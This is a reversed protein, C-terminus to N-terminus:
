SEREPKSDPASARAREEALRMLMIKVGDLDRLHVDQQAHAMEIGAERLAKIVRFRLDSQVAALKTVDPTVGGVSFEFGNMGLNELAVSPAPHPLLMPCDKGVRELMRRVQEPDSKSSVTVRVTAAGLSNRHTYNTVTSTVLASNPVILSAKEATEIETSRVSIRRVFGELGNVSVRDGVKIPREVLLILGSVFNNVISQLGLGIGVSLAGAVIAFNTIDIGGYSVAVLAALIFGAYGVATRVSNAIGQDIRPSRFVDKDLWRQLLRTAFVLALFLLAALMIRAVSIRFDGVQFGLVAARVWSLSESLTYGWTILFLPVAALALAINLLASFARTLVRSQTEDLGTQEELVTALPKIGSGPAGLLARIALHLVLVVAIASGTVIVQQAIFRGLGIYGFLTTALIALAALLIPVKLIQPRLLSTDDYVVADVAAPSSTTVAAPSAAGESIPVSKDAPAARPLPDFPVRVIQLMLLGIALSALATEMISLPLPLYLRAIIQQLILDGSFVAAIGMIIRSLRHAAPTSLDVLRWHARRPQLIARALASAVIFALLAPAAAHAIKGVEMVLLNLSELGGALASLAVLGPLALLPAMWGVTVAKTFFSPPKERPGDLRHALFRRVLAISVALLLAVGGILAALATGRRSALSWWDSIASGVQRVASPLDDALTDWTAPTVPSPSRQLIHSAFLDQRARQLTDRLQNARVVILEINKLAGDFEAAKANLRAREATVNAAEPAADKAPTTGLQEVQQRLAEQKPKIADRAAKAGDFVAVLRTSLLTLEPDNDLNNTVAKELRDMDAKLQDVPRQVDAIEKLDADTLVPPAPEAPAPPVAPPPASPATGPPEAASPSAAPASPATQSVAVGAGALLSLALVAFRLIHRVLVM